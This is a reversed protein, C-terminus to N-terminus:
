VTEVLRLKLNTSSVLLVLLQEASHQFKNFYILYGM